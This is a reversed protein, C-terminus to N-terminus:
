QMPFTTPHAEFLGVGVGVVLICGDEDANTLALVFDTLAHFGTLASSGQPFSDKTASNRPQLAVRQELIVKEGYSSVYVLWTKLHLM